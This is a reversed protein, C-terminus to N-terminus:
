GVCCFLLNLIHYMVMTQILSCLSFILDAFICYLFVSVICQSNYINAVSSHLHRVCQVGGVELFSFLSYILCIPRKLNFNERTITFFCTENHLVHFICFLVFFMKVHDVM